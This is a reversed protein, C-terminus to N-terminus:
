IPSFGVNRSQKSLGSKAYTVPTVNCLSFDRASNTSELSLEIAFGSIVFFVEVGHEGWPVFWPATPHGFVIGFRTTYHFALVAAAALGRLVDLEPIRERGEGPRSRRPLTIESM